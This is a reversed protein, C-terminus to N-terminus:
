ETLLYLFKNKATWKKSLIDAEWNLERPIWEFNINSFQKVLSKCRLSFIRSLGRTLRQEGSMARIVLESDGYIQVVNNEMQNLLLFNLAHSLAEYEAVNCSMLEGEGVFGYGEKILLGDEKVLFGYKAMGGPNRTISGDFYVEIM